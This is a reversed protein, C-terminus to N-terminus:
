KLLKLEVTIKTGVDKESEIHIFGHHGRVVRKVYSLGLGYGKVDHKDGNSIRYYKKFILDLHKKEIGIGHDEIVIFLKDDKRFAKLNIRAKKKSYKKSNDLLNTIANSLHFADGKLMYNNGEIQYEFDVEEIVTLLKFSECVQKLVEAFDFTNLTFVKGKRELNSLELVKDTHNKLKDTQEQIISLIPKKNESVEEELIKAAVGIAFVPTKLEHTLNNIFENTTTIVSRQWYFSRLVWIVVAVIALMFLLGPITLGNLQFLFYKNLNEFNLELITRKGLKKPLYGSLELPYKIIEADAEFSAKESRLFIISDKTYLKFTFGANIGQQTLKEAIFDELFYRSADQLSDIGLNFYSSDRSIAKELLVTLQNKDELGEKIFGGANGVKQSFQVKALNLGIRLYQYQIVALGIVSVLFVGIYLKRKNMM